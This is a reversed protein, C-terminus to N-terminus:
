DVLLRGSSGRWLDRGGQAYLCPNTRYFRAGIEIIALDYRQWGSSPVVLM